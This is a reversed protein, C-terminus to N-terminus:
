SEDFGTALHEWCGTAAAPGAADAGAKEELPDVFGRELLVAFEDAPVPPSFYYGQLQDCGGVILLDRQQATEVGEAVVLLDLQRGIALIASV